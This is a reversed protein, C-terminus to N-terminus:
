VFVLLPYSKNEDFDPPLLLRVRSDYGNVTINFDKQQPALRQSLLKRTKENTNWTLVPQHNEDNITVTTLDPGSCILSYYSRQSSFSATAYTCKNGTVNLNTSIKGHSLSLAHSPPLSLSLFKM